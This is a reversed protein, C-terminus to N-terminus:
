LQEGSALVKKQSPDDADVMHMSHMDNGEKSWDLYLYALKDGDPSWSPAHEDGIESSMEQLSRNEVDYVFLDYDGRGSMNSVFAVKKGDPSWTPDLCEKAYGTMPLERGTKRDRTYLDSHPAGHPYHREFLVTKGDPSFEPNRDIFFGAGHSFNRDKGGLHDTMRLQAGDQDFTEYVVEQGTPDWDFDGQFLGPRAVVRENDGDADMVAIADGEKPTHYGLFAIKDGSPAWMPKRGLFTMAEPNSGDADSVFVGWTSLEDESPKAYASYALKEGDPSFQPSSVWSERPAIQDLTGDEVSVIVANRGLEGAVKSGDPSWSPQANSNPYKLPSDTRIKTLITQVSM